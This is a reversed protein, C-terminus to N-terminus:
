LRDKNKELWEMIFSLFAGVLLSVIGALIVNHMKKPRIPTRPIEPEITVDFGRITKIANELDMLREKLEIVEEELQLPNFGLYKVRDKRLQDIVYNKFEDMEQIKTQLEAKIQLNREKWMSIRENVYPNQNLYLVIGNKLDTILGQDYTDLTIEVIDGADRPIKADIKVVKKIQEDKLNLKTSLENLQKERRLIDLESILKEVEGTSMIPNKGVTSSNFVRIIFSSRYVPPVLLNIVGTILVASLVLGAILKFRKKIIRYLEYLDIDNDKHMTM